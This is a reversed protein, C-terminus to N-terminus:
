QERKHVPNYIGSSSKGFQYKNNVAETHVEIHNVPVSKKVYSSLFMTTLTVRFSIILLNGYKAYDIHEAQSIEEFRTTVPWKVEGFDSFSIYFPPNRKCLLSNYLVQFDEFLSTNTTIFRCEVGLDGYFGLRQLHVPTDTPLAPVIDGATTQHIGRQIPNDKLKEQEAQFLKALELEIDSGLPKYERGYFDTTSIDLKNNKYSIYYIENNPHLDTRKLPDYKYQLVNYSAGGPRPTRLSELLEETINAASLAEFNYMQRLNYSKMAEKYDDILSNYFTDFYIQFPNFQEQLGDMLCKVVKTIM